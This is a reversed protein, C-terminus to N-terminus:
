YGLATWARQVAGLSEGLGADCADAVDHMAELHLAQLAAPSVPRGRRTRRRLARRAAEELTARREADAREGATVARRDAATAAMGLLIAAVIIVLATM